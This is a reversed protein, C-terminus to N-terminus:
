IFLLVAALEQQYENLLSFSKSPLLVDSIQKIKETNEDNLDAFILYGEKFDDYITYEDMFEYDGYSSSVANMFWVDDDSVDFNKFFNKDDGFDIVIKSQGL